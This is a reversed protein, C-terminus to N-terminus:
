EAQALALLADIHVELADITAFGPADFAARATQDPDVIAALQCGDTADILHAHRAGISGAGIVGLRIM